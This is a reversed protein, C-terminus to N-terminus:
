REAFTESVNKNGCKTKVNKLMDQPVKFDIIIVLKLLM